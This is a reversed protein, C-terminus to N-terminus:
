YVTYTPLLKQELSYADKLKMAATVIHLSKPAWFFFTQWQKWQKRMQKCSIIPGSVMIKSKQISHKLGVKESEQKMLLSTLEESVVM